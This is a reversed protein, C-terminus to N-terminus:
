YGAAMGDKRPDSGGELIGRARDIRIAQAGGIAGPVREVTHGLARLGDVTAEPVYREAHLVYSKEDFFMRPADIAEQVDMGFDTINGLVHAHGCPQYGGGMVGFSLYPRGESLVMAPIITHLPRKGGEITNPHGPELRFCAGRNQLLVGSKPATIASGFDKYVSNILSVALGDKDVVSLYVTDSRPGLVSPPLDAIRSGPDVLGALRAIHDDSLLEAPDHPMFDPDALFRDRLSYAIRGAELELHFRQTGNPDLKQLDFKELIGLMVLAIFGQGNPPLEAVTLGRYDGTVPTMDDVQMEAMDELTMLGGKARLTAVIDEAVAGEYFAGSGEEAIRQLTDALPAHRMIEGTRPAKGDILYASKSGEDASLKEVNRSWDLAVRPTVAYGERAYQIARGLVDGLSKTGHRELMTEWARVAGPVTVAHPSTLEVSSEGLEILKKSSAAKPARGSGNLGHLKGDPEAIIAFCDGGIGTMQPEVVCQVAVAAVAADVANGGAQLTEIAATTSLPHSTAAMANAAYVASRGPAHFDRM